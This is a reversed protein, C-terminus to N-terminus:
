FAQRGRGFVWAVFAITALVSVSEFSALTTQSPKWVPLSPILLAILGLACLGIVVIWATAVRFRQHARREMVTLRFAADPVSPREARWFAALKAEADNM